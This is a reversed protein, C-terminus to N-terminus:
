MEEMEDPIRAWHPADAVFATRNPKFINPDDLTGAAVSVLGFETQGWLNSGCTGCFHRKVTRGDRARKKHVTPNGKILHFDSNKVMMGAYGDTGTISLCDKCYCFLQFVPEGTIKYRVEGCFCGGYIEKAM